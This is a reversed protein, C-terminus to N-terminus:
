ESIDSKKFLKVITKWNTKIKDKKTILNFLFYSDRGAKELVLYIASKDYDTKPNRFVLCNGSKCIKEEMNEFITEELDKIKNDIGIILYAIKSKKCYWEYLRPDSLKAEVFSCIDESEWPGPDDKMIINREKKLSLYKEKENSTM